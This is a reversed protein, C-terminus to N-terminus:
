RRDGGGLRSLYKLLNSALEKGSTGRSFLGTKEQSVEELYKTVETFAKRMAENEKKIPMMEKAVTEAAIRAIEAERERSQKVISKEESKLAALKELLAKERQDAEALMKRGWSDVEEESSLQSAKEILGQISVIVGELKKDAYKELLAPVNEFVARGQDSVEKITAFIKKNNEKMMEIIESQRKRSEEGIRAVEALVASRFNEDEEKQEKEKAELLTHIDDLENALVDMIGKELEAFRARMESRTYQGHRDYAHQLNKARMELEGAVAKVLGEPKDKPAFDSISNTIHAISQSIPTLQEAVVETTKDVYGDIVKRRDAPINLAERM